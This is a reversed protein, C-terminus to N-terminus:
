TLTKGWRIILDNIDLDVESEHLYIHPREISQKLILNSVDFEIFYFVKKIVSSGGMINFSLQMLSILGAEIQAPTMQRQSECIVKEPAIDTFYQGSGILADRGNKKRFSPKLVRSEMIALQGYETSYHYLSQHILKEVFRRPPPKALSLHHQHLAIKGLGRYFNYGKFYAQQDGLAVLDVLSSIKWNEQFGQV